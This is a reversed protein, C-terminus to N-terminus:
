SILDTNLKDKAKVILIISALTLLFLLFIARDIVNALVITSSTVHNLRETLLLFSERIGIAGPTLGVFLALNAAGTYTIVQSIKIAHNLYHLETYYIIMQLITQTFTAIVLIVVPKYNLDLRDHKFKSIYLKVSVIGVMIFVISLIISMWWPRSGALVLIVSILGYILYYIITSLTYDLIKLKHKKFLYYARYAPGAQGPIFFNLVLSYANILANENFKLKLKALRLTATLIMILVGFMLINLLYITIVLTAPVHKLSTLLLRHKSFYYVAAILTALILVINISKKPLKIM